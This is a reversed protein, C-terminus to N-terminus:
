YSTLFFFEIKNVTEGTFEQFCQFPIVEVIKGRNCGKVAADGANGQKTVDKKFIRKDNLKRPIVKPYSFIPM